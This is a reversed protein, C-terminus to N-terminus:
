NTIVHASKIQRIHIGEARLGAARLSQTYMDPLNRMGMKCSNCVVYAALTTELTFHM